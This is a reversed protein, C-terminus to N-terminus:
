GRWRGPGTAEAEAPSLTLPSISEHDHGSGPSDSRDPQSETGYLWGRKTGLAIGPVFSMPLTMAKDDASSPPTSLGAPTAFLSSLTKRRSGSSSSSGSFSSSPGLTSPSTASPPQGSTHSAFPLKGLVRPRAWMREDKRFIMRAVMTEILGVSRISPPVLEAQSPSLDVNGAGQQHQEEFTINSTPFATHNGQPTPTTVM